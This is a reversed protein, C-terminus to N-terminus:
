KNAEFLNLQKQPPAALARWYMETPVHMAIGYARAMRRMETANIVNCQSDSFYGDRQTVYTYLGTDVVESGNAYRLCLQVKVAKGAGAPRTSQLPYWKEDGLQYKIPQPM